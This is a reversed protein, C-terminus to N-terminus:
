GKAGDSVSGYGGDKVIEEGGNDTLNWVRGRWEREHAFADEDALAEEVGGFVLQYGEERDDLAKHSM